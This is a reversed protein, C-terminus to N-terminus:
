GQRGIVRVTGEDGWGEEEEKGEVGRLKRWGRVGKGRRVDDKEEKQRRLLM